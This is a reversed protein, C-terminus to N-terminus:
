RVPQSVFELIHLARYPTVDQKPYAYKGFTFAGPGGSRVNNIVNEQLLCKMIDQQHCKMGKTREETQGKEMIGLM